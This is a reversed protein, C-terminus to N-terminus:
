SRLVPVSGESAARVGSDTASRLRRRYPPILGIGFGSALGLAGGLAAALGVSPSTPRTPVEAPGLVSIVTPALSVRVSLLSSRVGLLIALDGQLATLDSREAATLTDKGSLETITSQTRVIETQTTALDSEIASQADASYGTIRPALKVLQDAIADAVAAAQGPDSDRVTITLIASTRSLSGSVRGALIDATVPLRLGTIVDQLVARSDAAEAFTDGMSATVLLARAEFTKALQNAVIFALGGGVVAGVVAM